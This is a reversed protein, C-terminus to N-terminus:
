YIKVIFYPSSHLLDTNHIRYTDSNTVDDSATNPAAVRTFDVYRITM